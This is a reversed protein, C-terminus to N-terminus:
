IGSKRKKSERKKKNIYLSVRHEIAQPITPSSIEYRKEPDFRARHFGGYLSRFQAQCWAQTKEQSTGREQGLYCIDDWGQKKSPLEYEKRGIKVVHQRHDGIDLPRLEGDVCITGSEGTGGSVKKERVYGCCVCVDSFMLADCKPCVSEARETSEVGIKKDLAVLEDIGNEWFNQITEKHRVMNQAFDLWLSFEKNDSSRMARGAQQIVSGVSRRWPHADIGCLIDPVDFGRQIAEVGVLGMIRGARLDAIADDKQEQKLEYHLVKFDHGRSNFEDNLAEADSVTNAFAITKVPKGFHEKTKEEWDSVIKKADGIVITAASRVDFDGASNKDPTKMHGVYIKLSALWGQRVLDNTSIVNVVDQWIDGLGAKFPTATLGLWTSGQDMCKLLHKITIHCEDQINLDAEHLPLDRAAATQASIIQLPNDIFRTTPGSQIGHNLGMKWFASSTQKVLLDRDVIFNCRKGKSLVHNILGMAVRTNHTVTFDDLLFRGDGDLEFGFYEDDPIRQVKFGTRMVDKKQLRPSAKKREIRTPIKEVNGSLQVRYYVGYDKVYKEKENARIGLSRAIFAVDKALQNSKSLYDFHNNKSLCGDTDLLGALIEKRDKRSAYKYIDPIFKDGSNVNLGFGRIINLIPNPKQGYPNHNSISYNDAKSRKDEKKTVRMGWADAIGYICQIIEPDPTNIEVSRKLSGDGLLVGLFYPDLPIEENQNPFDAGVHFLKYLHKANDNWELYENLPVDIVEGAKKTGCNTRVLTLVHVDNCRWSKGKIPQIEYMPGFGHGLGLVERPQSDPGMLLDGVRIDQVKKLRGSHMIVQEDRGLCKGAGTPACLIVRKNGNRVSEYFANICRVQYDRLPIKSNTNYNSM